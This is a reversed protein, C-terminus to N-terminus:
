NRQESITEETNENFRKKKKYNLLQLTNDISQTRDQTKFKSDDFTKSEM